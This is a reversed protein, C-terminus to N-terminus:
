KRAAKAFAADSEAIRRRVARVTLRSLPLALTTKTQLSAFLVVPETRGPIARLLGVYRGGGAAVIWAIEHDSPRARPIAAIVPLHAARGM